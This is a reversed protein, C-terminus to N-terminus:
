PEGRPGPKPAPLPPAAPPQSPGSAGDPGASPDEQGSSVAPTMTGGPEPPSQPGPGEGPAAAPEPPPQPGPVEGPAAAPKPPPKPLGPLPTREPAGGLAAAAEPPLISRRLAAFPSPIPLPTKLDIEGAYRLASRLARPGVFEGFVTIAAAAVLVTDGVPGPFRLAFLLGISLCVAGTSLLGLGLAPPAGRAAPAAARLALGTAGKALVRAALAAGVVWFGAPVADADIRAGALLLLPHLVARETPEVMAWIEDRHPSVTAVAVGFAFMTTLPSLGLRTSLGIALVSAGLLVGWSEELRFDRGLLLAAAAGLLAGLGLTLAAWGLTPVAWPLHGTPRTAFLLATALIPVADDSDALEALLGSLPGSAGYRQGVWRVVHRTTEACAAGTGGACLLREPGGLTSFAALAAYVALAILAGAGLSFLSGLALNGLRVRRRGVFGYDLGVVLAVWGAAAEAFPRFVAVTSRDLLGLMHPGLMLGLVLYEAGSPLGFGRISHGSVLSSGLYALLLLGMLLWIANM